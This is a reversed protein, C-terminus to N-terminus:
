YQFQTMEAISVIPSLSTQPEAVIYQHESLHPDGYVYAIRQIGADYIYPKSWSYGLFSARRTAIEAAYGNGQLRLVTALGTWAPGSAPLLQTADEFEAYALDVRNMKLYVWGRVLPQNFSNSSTEKVLLMNIVRNAYVPNRSVYSAFWHSYILWPYKALVERALTAASNVNGMEEYARELTISYMVDNPVLDHARMLSIMSATRNGFVWEIIARNYLAQDNDPDVDLVRNSADLIASLSKCRSANNFIDVLGTNSYESSSCTRVERSLNTLLVVPDHESFLKEL